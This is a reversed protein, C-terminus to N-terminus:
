LRSRLPEDVSAVIRSRWLDARRAHSASGGTEAAAQHAEYALAALGLREALSAAARLRTGFM